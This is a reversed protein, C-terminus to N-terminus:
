LRALEKRVAENSVQVLVREGPWEWSQSTMIKPKIGERKGSAVFISNGEILPSIINNFFFWEFDM